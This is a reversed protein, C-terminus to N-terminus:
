CCFPLLQQRKEHSSIGAAALSGRKASAAATRKKLWSRDSTQHRSVYLALVLSRAVALLPLLRQRQVFLRGWFVTASRPRWGFWTGDEIDMISATAMGARLTWGRGVFMNKSLEGRRWGCRSLLHGLTWLVNRLMVSGYLPSFMASFLM